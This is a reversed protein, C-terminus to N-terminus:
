GRKPSWWKQLCEAVKAALEVCSLKFPRPRRARARARQHALWARYDDQGGNAAVERSETSTAM